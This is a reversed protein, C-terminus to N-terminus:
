TKESMPHGVDEELSLILTLIETISLPRPCLHNPATLEKQDWIIIFKIDSGKNVVKPAIHLAAAQLIWSTM